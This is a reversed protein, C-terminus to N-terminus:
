PDSPDQASAAFVADVEALFQPIEIPKTLYSAAGAALSRRREDPSADATLVMVPIHTTRTDAKLQRLIEHGHLDPLHLDLLILDPVVRKALAVGSTGETASILKLGPRLEFIHETLKLNSLNDEIYLVTFRTDASVPAIDEAADEPPPPPPAVSSRAVPLDVWFRAGEGVSSEMDLRGGMLEVLCRSLSLGLGAGEVESQAALREFPVFLREQDAESIGRGTDKFYLRVRGPEPTEATLDVSGREHNYKIANSLLNLAVQKLRQRDAQVLLASKLGRGLHIEIGRNGALPKMLHVCERLLAAADVTESNVEMRGAEIRSIDLVENILELLHRGGSLIQKVSAQQSSGLTRDMELVQGFGLIANMPTRLEHSMRSLFESKARSAKEAEEKAALIKEASAKEETIDRAIGCLAYIRGDPGPLPFKVSAYTRLGDVGRIREEVEIVEGTAFVQAEHKSREEALDQPMFDAATRGRAEGGTIGFLRQFSRNVLLYRGESDQIFIVAPSHDMMGELQQQTERLNRETGQRKEIDGLLSARSRELEETRERVRAELVENAHQLAEEARLRQGNERLLSDNALRLEAPSPLALAAPMLKWLAAATTLSVLGTFAKMVGGLRYIPDWVTWIELLHTLGCACIFTAFMILIWSFVLGEKRRVFYALAVPISFYSLAIVGDSVVHLWLIEPLWFYCHGHPMFDSSCLHRVFDWM